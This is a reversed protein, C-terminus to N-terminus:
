AKHNIDYMNEVFRVTAYAAVSIAFILLYNMCVEGSQFLIM